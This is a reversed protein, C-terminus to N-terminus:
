LLMVVDHSDVCGSALWTHMASCAAHYLAATHEVPARVKGRLKTDAKRSLLLTVADVHNGYAAKMLPTEGLSDKVNIDAGADLLM